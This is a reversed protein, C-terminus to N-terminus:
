SEPTISLMRERTARLDDSSGAGGQVVTPKILIVLEKKVQVRDRSGFLVGIVPIRNLGPVGSLRDVVDIKMLGGIAVINGDTVRVVSDTESVTSRATPLSVDGGFVSGLNLNRNDQQVNSVQPHVHLIVSGDEDVQPTVDLAVGSFFPQLTLTPFTTTAGTTSGASTGASGGTVGTVFFEDTGVKLVAKQNNLVAIRPSSLVQVTGQSELFNVLAAFSGSQFALSFMSGATLAPNLMGSGAGAVEGSAAGRAIAGGATDAAVAGSGIVGSTALQTNPQMAGYALRGSRFAAWNVGAQSAEGLTVEVIKAELMVQREVAGRIALLYSEVERMEMPTARVVVVGAQPNVIVGRGRENGVIARLTTQLDSWFDSRTSTQVRSSDSVRGNAGAPSPAGTGGTGSQPAADSVSGSTVRVDTRGNREGVLYNVRFVRTGIGASQVFIRTGEIRYEYGYLEHLAEFAERVTVSRLNVSITGKVTPHVLVSYRTGAVLTMFVKQVPTDSVSLDFREETGLSEIMRLELSDRLGEGARQPAPKTPAAVAADLERGITDNMLAPKQPTACGLALLGTLLAPILPKM